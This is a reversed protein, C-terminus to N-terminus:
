PQSHLAIFDSDIRPHRARGRPDISWWGLDNDRNEEDTPPGYPVNHWGTGFVEAMHAEMRQRATTRAEEVVSATNLSSHVPDRADATLIESPTGSEIWPLPRHETTSVTRQVPGYIRAAARRVVNRQRERESARDARRISSRPPSTTPLGM